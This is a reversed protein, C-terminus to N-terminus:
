DGVVRVRTETGDLFTGGSGGLVLRVVLTEAEGDWTWATAAAGQVAAVSALPPTTAGDVTVFLPASGAYPIAVTTADGPFGFRLELRFDRTAGVPFAFAYDDPLLVNMAYASSNVSIGIDQTAGRSLSALSVHAPASGSEDRLRLNAYRNGALDGPVLLANASADYVANGPRLLPTAAAVFWGANGTLSGDDDHLLLSANGSALAPTPEYWAPEAEQLTIGSVKLRPDIAWRNDTRLQGFAAAERVAGQITTWRFRAYTTDVVEVHGEYLEHGLLPAGPTNPAPLSRGYALEAASTPTGVNDSEGVVVSDELVTFNDGDSQLGDSAFFVATLNDALMAERWTAKIDSARYSIGIGRNKYATFRLFESPAAPAPQALYDYKFFGNKGNSHATNDVFVVPEKLAAATSIDYWFGHDRSGAAVNGVLVNETNKIWFTSPTADSPDLQAAFPPRRTSLGLNGVLRNRTETGDEMYYTHGLVDHCVNDQLVVDQTGHLVIGRNWSHHISSSRIYSGPVSGLLHFHVPYRGLLGADGLGDFEVWSVRVRTAGVASLFRVHGGRDEAVGPATFAIDRDLLAVEAREDVGLLEVEGWHTYALPQDLGVLTGSADVSTIVREEAQAFDYDTSAVVLTEGPRWDVPSELQLTTAGAPATAALQLWSHTRPAGHLDLVGGEEVEFTRSLPDTPPYFREGLRLELAHPYPLQETGARFTGRVAVHDATLELSPACGVVLAGEVILDRLPPPSVDLVVTAGVPITVTAGLAPVPEGLAAWTAPDSWRAAGPPLVCAHERQARGVAATPALQAPLAAPFVVLVVLGLTRHLLM